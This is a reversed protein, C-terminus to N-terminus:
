ISNASLQQFASGPPASVFIAKSCEGWTQEWPVFMHRIDVHLCVRPTFVLLCVLLKSGTWEPCSELFAEQFDQFLVSDVDNLRM